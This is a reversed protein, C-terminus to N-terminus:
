ILLFLMLKQIWAVKIIRRAKQYGEKVRVIKVIKAKLVRELIKIKKVKGWVVKVLNVIKLNLM